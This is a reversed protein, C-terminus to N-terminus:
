PLKTEQISIQGESRTVTLTKKPVGDESITFASADGLPTAADARIVKKDDFSLTTVNDVDAGQATTTEVWRSDRDRFDEWVYGLLPDKQGRTVARQLPVTSENFVQVQEAGNFLRVGDTEEQLGWDPGFQLYSRYTYTETSRPMDAVILASGPKYLLLRNHTM